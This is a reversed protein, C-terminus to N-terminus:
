PFLKIIRELYAWHEKFSMGTSNSFRFLAQNHFKDNSMYTYTGFILFMVFIVQFNIIRQHIKENQACMKPKMM